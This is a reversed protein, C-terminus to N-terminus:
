AEDDWDTDEVTTGSKALLAEIQAMAADYEGLAGESFTTDSVVGSSQEPRHGGAAIAYLHVGSLTTRTLLGAENLTALMSRLGLRTVGLMTELQVSRMPGFGALVEVLAPARSSRRKGVRSDAFKRALEDTEALWNCLSGAVDCLATAIPAPANEPDDNGWPSDVSAHAKLADLRILAPFPLAHPLLGSKYWCEGWLMELAWRPSPPAPREVTLRMGGVMASQVAIPEVARESPAFLVHTGAARHLQALALLPDPSATLAAMLDRAAAIIAAADQHATEASHHPTPDLGHPAAHDVTHDSPALFASQLGTAAEALMDWSSHTLETLIAECLARPPRATRQPEDSLTAVGAFWAHFRMDTFSHGEQRLATVLMTHVLRLAFLRLSRPRAMALAGGLRGLALLAAATPPLKDSLFM